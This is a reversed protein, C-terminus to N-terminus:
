DNVVIVIYIIINDRLFLVIQYSKLTVFYFKSNCPSATVTISNSYM